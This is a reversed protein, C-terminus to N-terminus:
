RRTFETLAIGLPVPKVSPVMDPDCSVLVILSLFFFIVRSYM